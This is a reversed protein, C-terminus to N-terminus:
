PLFLLVFSSVEGPFRVMVFTVNCLRTRQAYPEPPLVSASQCTDPPGSQVRMSRYSMLAFGADATPSRSWYLTMNCDRRISLNLSITCLSCFCDPTYVSFRPFSAGFTVGDLASLLTRLM